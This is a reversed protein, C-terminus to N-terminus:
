FFGNYHFIERFDVRITKTKLKIDEQGFIGLHIM